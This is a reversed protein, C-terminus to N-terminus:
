SSMGTGDEDNHEELQVGGNLADWREWMPGAESNLWEFVRHTERIRAAGPGGHPFLRLGEATIDVFSTMSELRRKLVGSWADETIRYYTARKGARTMAQVMRAETLLRLTGTLSARSAQVAKAIQAASQEPPDSVMLWAMTRGMIPAWGAQHMFWAAVREMWAQVKELDPDPEQDATSTM